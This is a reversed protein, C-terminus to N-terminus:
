SLTQIHTPHIHTHTPPPPSLNGKGASSRQQTQNCIPDYWLQTLMSVTTDANRPTNIVSVPLIGFNLTIWRAECQGAGRHIQKVGKVGAM